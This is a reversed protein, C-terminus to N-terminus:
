KKKGQLFEVLELFRMNSLSNVVSEPVGLKVMLDSHVRYMKEIDEGADKLDRELKFQEPVSPFRVEVEKGDKKILLKEEKDLDFVQSM